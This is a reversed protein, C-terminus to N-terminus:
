HRDHFRTRAAIMSGRRTTATFRRPCERFLVPRSSQRSGARGGRVRLAVGHALGDCQEGGEGQKAARRGSRNSRGGSTGRRDCRLGRHLARLGRDLPDRELRCLRTIRPSPGHAEAVGAVAHGQDSVLASLGVAAARECALSGVASPPAHADVRLEHASSRERDAALRWARREIKSPKARVRRAARVRRKRRAAISQAEARAAFAVARRSWPAFNPAEERDGRARVRAAFRQQSPRDCLLRALTRGRGRM